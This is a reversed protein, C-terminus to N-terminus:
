YFEEAKNKNVLGDLIRGKEELLFLMLQLNSALLM